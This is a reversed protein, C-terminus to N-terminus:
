KDYTRRYATVPDEGRELLWYFPAMDLRVGCGHRQGAFFEGIYVEGKPPHPPPQTTQTTTKPKNTHKNTPKNLPQDHLKPM